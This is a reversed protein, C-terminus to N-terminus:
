MRKSKKEKNKKLNEDKRKDENKRMNIEKRKLENRVNNRNRKEIGKRRGIRNSLVIRMWGKRGDKSEDRKKKKEKGINM